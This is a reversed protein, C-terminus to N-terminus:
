VRTCFGLSFIIGNVYTGSSAPTTNATSPQEAFIDFFYGMQVRLQSSSTRGVVLGLVAEPSIGTAGAGGFTAASWRLAGGVYPSVTAASLPYYVGVGVDFLLNGDHGLLDISADWLLFEADFYLFANVGAAAASRSGAPRNFAALGLVSAGGRMRVSHVVPPAAEAETLNGLAAAKAPSTNSGFGLALRKLVGDLDDASTATLDATYVTEGSPVRYVMLRARSSSGLRTIHLVAAFDAKAEQGARLAQEPSIEQATPDGVLIVTRGGRALDGELIDRAAALTGSEVNIGQAPLLAITEAKAVATGALLALVAVWVKRM